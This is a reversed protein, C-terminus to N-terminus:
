PKSYPKPYSTQEREEWEKLIAAGYQGWIAKALRAVRLDADKAGTAEV